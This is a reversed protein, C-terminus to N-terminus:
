SATPVGLWFNTGDQNVLLVGAPGYAASGPAFTLDVENPPLSGKQTLKTLSLDPQFAWVDQRIDNADFVYGPLFLGRKGNTVVWGGSFFDHSPAGKYSKWTKGDTSTWSTETVKSFDASNQSHTVILTQDNIREVDMGGDTKAAYTGLVSKQWSLGSTSWWVVSQIEQDGCGPEGKIYGAMVFGGKFAAASQVTAGKFASLPHRTWFVGDTSVWDIAISGDNSLGTAIYGAGGGHIDIVRDSGFAQATDVATWTLGDKSLWLGTVLEPGGCTVKQEPVGIAMLGAPGWVMGSIEVDPDAATLKHGQKWHSGDTSVWPEISASTPTGDQDTPWGERFAVYGGSWGYLSFATGFTPSDTPKPGM